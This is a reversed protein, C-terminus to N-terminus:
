AIESSLKSTGLIGLLFCAVATAAFMLRIGIADALIGSLWPGTFMGIAYVAQHIGMATTREDDAVHEISMGMMVPYGLGMSLGISLQALLLITLSMSLAACTMGISLFLFSLFVLSRAGIRRVTSTAAFNGLTIVGINVAVLMSQVVDTAGLQKALIPMFGFTTTYNAYQGVASLLAPYLVDRRVVLRGIGRATPRRSPRRRERTPLIVLLGLAAAFSALFFSLSYGGIDNLWGTVGTALVRGMSGIMTLLASARVADQAPFMASFVVVLPVWTGAALGTLARGLMLDEAGSAVGMVYAGLAALVFGVIIFPKRWGFWDSAIGLPMRIIVQWFGYMSLTLGVLALNETKGRVYLPLTPVYLYLSMWYLFVAVVFLFILLRRDSAGRTNIKGTMRDPGHLDKM